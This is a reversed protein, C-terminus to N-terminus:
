NGGIRILPGVLASLSLFNSAWFDDVGSEVRVGPRLGSVARPRM